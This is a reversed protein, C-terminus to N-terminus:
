IEAKLSDLLSKQREAKNRLRGLIMRDLTGKALIHHVRVTGVVNQRYIRRNFQEYTEPNDTLSFWVIDNGGQQLNVGHSITSSQVVLLPVKKENWRRITKVSDANKTTGDIYRSNPFHKKLMELEFKFNYAVLVNKGHLDDILDKLAEIKATHIDLVKRDEDYLGGSAIQRCKGYATAASAALVNKGGIEAALEKKMAKYTHNAKQPLCVPVDNYILSPLDLHTDADLRFVASNVKEQIQKEAGPKIEWKIFSPMVNPIFYKKRYHTIYKGLTQGGDMLYIQPFLDLLSNPTPTGTLIYRRNFDPILKRLTKTRKASWNKFKTSEDIILMDYRNKLDQSGLWKLGEPNLIDIQENALQKTKGHLVRYTLGRFHGWKEIEDPWTVLCVSLPAIVLTRAELVQCVKLAIVTKGM